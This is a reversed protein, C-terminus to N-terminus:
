KDTYMPHKFQDRSSKMDVVEVKGLLPLLEKILTAKQAMSTAYLSIDFRSPMQKRARIELMVDNTLNFLVNDDAFLCELLDTKSQFNTMGFSMFICGGAGVLAMPGLFIVSVCCVVIGFWAIKRTASFVVEPILAKKTYIIGLKTLKYRYHTNNCGAFRFFAFLMSGGIIFMLKLAIMDIAVALSWPIILMMLGCVWDGYYMVKGGAYGIHEWEFVVPAQRLQQTLEELAEASLEENNIM